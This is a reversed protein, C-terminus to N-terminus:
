ISINLYIYIYVCVFLYCYLVVPSFLFLGDQTEGWSDYYADKGDKGTENWADRSQGNSERLDTGWDNKKAWAPSPSKSFPSTLGM